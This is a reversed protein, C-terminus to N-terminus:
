GGPVLATLPLRTAGGDGVVVLGGPVAAVAALGKRNPLQVRRFSHAGDHSVLVVGALGVIAVTGDALRVGGSLLAETGSDVKSWSLGADESRFLHGRLGYALLVDGGLPLVGFFSGPYPSRLVRWHTGGDDSRYLRGAEAAIYLRGREDGAIANLHPQTIGEDDAMPDVARAKAAAHPLVLPQPEFAASTWSRGGDASRYVTAFAGVAVGHGAADFWIGLLPQQREPAWHRLEWSRGGDETRLIAEDHGVAWGHTADVFHVATLTSSTPAPSQGWSAGADASVLVHGREGVAVLNGGPLTAVGLLLSRPALRAMVAATPGEVPGVANAAAGVLLAVLGAAAAALIVRAPEGRPLSGDVRV